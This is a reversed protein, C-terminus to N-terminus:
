TETTTQWHIHTPKFYDAHFDGPAEEDLKYIHGYLMEWGKDATDLDIPGKSNESDILYWIEQHKKVCVAHGYMGPYTTYHLLIRDNKIGTRTPISEIREIIQQRSSGGSIGKETNEYANAQCSTTHVGACRTILGYVLEPVVCNRCNGM